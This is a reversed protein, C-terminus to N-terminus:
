KSLASGLNLALLAPLLAVVLAIVIQLDSLEM